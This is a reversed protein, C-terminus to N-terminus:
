VEIKLNLKLNFSPEMTAIILSYYAPLIFSNFSEITPPILRQSVMLKETPLAPNNSELIPILEYNENKFNFPYYTTVVTGYDDTNSIFYFNFNDTKDYHKDGVNVKISKKTLNKLQVFNASFLVATTVISSYYTEKFINTNKIQFFSSYIIIDQAAGGNTIELKYLDQNDLQFSFNSSIDDFREREIGFKDLVRVSAPFCCKGVYNFEMANITRKEGATMFFTNNM